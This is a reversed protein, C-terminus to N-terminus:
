HDGHLMELISNRGVTYRYTQSTLSATKAEIAAALRRVIPSQNAIQSSNHGAHRLWFSGKKGTAQFAVLGGPVSKDQL